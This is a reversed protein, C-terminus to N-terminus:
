DRKKYINEALKLLVKIDRQVANDVSYVAPVKNDKVFLAVRNCYEFDDFVISHREEKIMYPRITLVPMEMNPVEDPDFAEPDNFFRAHTEPSDTSAVIVDVPFESLHKQVEILEANCVPTGDRPYCFLIYNSPLDFEKDAGDHTSVVEQGHYWELPATKFLDDM